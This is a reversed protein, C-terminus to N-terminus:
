LEFVLFPFFRFNSEACEDDKINLHGSRLGGGGGLLPWRLM